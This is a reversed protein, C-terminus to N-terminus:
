SPEGLVAAACPDCYSADGGIAYTWIIRCTALSVRRGCRYCSTM